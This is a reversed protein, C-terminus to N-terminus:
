GVKVRVLSGDRFGQLLLLLPSFERIVLSWWSQVKAIAFGIANFPFQAFNILLEEM